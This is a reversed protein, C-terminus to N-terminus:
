FSSILFEQQSRSICSCVLQLSLFDNIARMSLQSTLLFNAMEWDQLSSFPYYLNLKCYASFGDLDFHTIFTEGDGKAQRAGLHCDVIWCTSQEVEIAPLIPGDVPPHDDDPDVTDMDWHATLDKHPHEEPLLDTYEISERQSEADLTDIHQCANVIVRKVPSNARCASNPQALHFTIGQDNTFFWYCRPCHPM